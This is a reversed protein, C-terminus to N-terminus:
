FIITDSYTTEYTQKTGTQASKYIAEIMRHRIVADEWTPYVGDPKAFEEYARGVNVHTAHEDEITIETMDEGDFSAHLTPFSMQIHGSPGKVQLEGHTGEVEWLLNTGKHIGGRFHASAYAGSTLVGSVSMQDHSTLPVSRITNGKGDRIETTKRANHITATLSEFEGFVYCMADLSHGGPISIMTAGNEIDALYANDENISAGWALGSAFLHTSLIKGLKGSDIIEKMKKVVSSQRAQLGVMTKINKSRALQTLEEAEQLNRALPWEVIANKGQLVAPTILQKHLPVKVSVVVTDIDPDQALEESSAYYKDIGFTEAASKSSEITSNALAKITYISSNKLYPEHAASAWHGESSLGAAAYNKMLMHKLNYMWLSLWKFPIKQKKINTMSGYGVINTDYYFWFSIFIGVIIAFIALCINYVQHAYPMKLLDSFCLYLLCAAFAFPMSAILWDGDTRTFRIRNTGWSTPDFLVYNPWGMVLISLSNIFFIMVLEGFGKGIDKM